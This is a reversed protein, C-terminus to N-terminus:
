RDTQRDTLGVPEIDESAFFAVRPLRADHSDVFVTTKM